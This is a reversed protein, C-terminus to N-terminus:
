IVRQTIKKYNTIIIIDRLDKINYYETWLTSPPFLKDIECLKNTIISLNYYYKKIEPYISLYEKLKKKCCEIDYYIKDINLYDIWNTFQGSYENEPDKTLRNDNECLEYYTEKSKINKESIIKKAKEYTITTGYRKITKLKLIKTLEDDYEGIENIIKTENKKVLNKEQKEIKINFVKIKQMITEDELGMQYIVEKVKILDQNDNNELLNSKNLIPLLIKNIKNPENINKRGGRQSTQLIRIPSYMNESFVEGDLLPLDFGEGLCYVCSIIGFKSKTFTDIILKQEKNKVNSDYTTYYLDPIDFYENYLLKNIYKKIKLSNIKNNSYILLHHSHGEFISKLSIFASLFLRKDTEEIINFTSFTDEIENITFTQIVYDCVINNNISWLLSKKEIIEGFYEINDNSLIIEDDKKNDKNELIKLTATLSLQKDSNIKIINTYKKTNEELNVNIETIHHVEDLIKIDFIFNIKNTSNYVKYSSSYTTIIICNNDNTNLFSIINDESVGNSVILCPINKFLEKIKDKWQLILVINPVGILIKRSQLKQTIWLSILTKGIGCTLVLLGKKNNRFHLISKNIIDNQYYRPKYTSNIKLNNIFDKINIKSIINKLRNCRVLKSIDKKSLKNYKISNNQLFPEILSIICRNYFETGANYKINYDKFEYQLLREIFAMKKIPIEYIDEFFGRIVEGTSYQSDREPINSAKGLKCADYIDYSTHNRVYIYGIHSHM